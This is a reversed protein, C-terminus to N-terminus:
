KQSVSVDDIKWDGDEKILKAKVHGGDSTGGSIDFTADATDGNVTVDSFEVDDAPDGQQAQQRCTEVAKDGKEGTLQEVLNQTISDCIEPDDSTFATTLVDQVNDEDSSGGGCGAISLAGM